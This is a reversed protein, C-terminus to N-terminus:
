STSTPSGTNKLMIPVFRLGLSSRFRFIKGNASFSVLAPVSLTKWKGLFEPFEPQSTFPVRRKPESWQFNKRFLRFEQFPLGMKWTSVEWHFYLSRTKIVMEMM